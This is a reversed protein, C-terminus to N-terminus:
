SPQASPRPLDSPAESPADCFVCRHRPDNADYRVASAIAQNAPPLVAGLAAFAISGFGILLLAFGVGALLAKFGSYHDPDLIAASLRGVVYFGLIILVASLVGSLVLYRFRPGTYTGAGVAAAILLIVGAALLGGAANAVVERAFSGERFIAM